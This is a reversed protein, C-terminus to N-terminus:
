TTQDPKSHSPDSHPELAIATGLIDRFERGYNEGIIRVTYVERGLTTRRRGQVIGPLMGLRVMQGVSFRWPNARFVRRRRVPSAALTVPLAASGRREILGRPLLTRDSPNIRQHMTM